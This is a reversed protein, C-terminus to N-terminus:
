FAFYIFEQGGAAALVLLSMIIYVWINLRIFWHWNQMPNLNNAKYQLVQFVILFWSYFLLTKLLEWTEPTTLPNFLIGGLYSVITEPTEARFILWGICTLQFFFIIMLIKKWQPYDGGMEADIGLARYISLLAGQYFGWIVFTWAAGHWLGGLIMTLMLNRYTLLSGGRNGGLPIYLYDRLWTSLSIHWRRWFSSPDTAFYPLRFNIMLNFGFLKATGRAIDTYGSFDCYIQLAFAYLVIVLSLSDTPPIAGASGGSAYYEFTPNVIKALNDAIVLKKFLGWFILWVGERVDSWEPTPRQQQFQPLLLKGREIPGAVLQPFFSVYAAFETLKKSAKIEGRYVDITYSMTQFTYFSIGVPLIIDLTFAGPTYGFLSESMVVFSDAFFNFYKFFGLIALNTAISIFLFVKKKNHKFFGSFRSYIINAAAVVVLTAAFIQWGLANVLLNSWDITLRLINSDFNIADYQIVLFVLASVLLSSTIKIRDKKSIEGEDILQAMCYDVATSLVILFLFRIDWYGYFFYSSIVILANQAFLQRKLVWYATLVIILFIAFDFSTFLM